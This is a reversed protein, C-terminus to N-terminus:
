RINLSPYAACDPSSRTRCSRQPSAKRRPLNSAVDDTPVGCACAECQAEIMERVAGFSGFQSGVVYLGRNSGCVSTGLVPACGVPLQNEFQVVLQDLKTRRRHHLQVAHDDHGFHMSRFGCQCRQVWNVAIAGQAVVIQKGRNLSLQQEVDSVLWARRFIKALGQLAWAGFWLLSEQLALQGLARPRLSSEIAGRGRPNCGRLKM